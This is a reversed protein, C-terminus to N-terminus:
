HGGATQVFRRVADAAHADLRSFEVGYQGPGALRVVQGGGGFSAGGPLRVDFELDSGMDLV